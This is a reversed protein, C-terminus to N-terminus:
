PKYDLESMWFNVSCDNCKFGIRKKQAMITHSGGTKDVNISGCKPCKKEKSILIKKKMEKGKMLIKEDAM